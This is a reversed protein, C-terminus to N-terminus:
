VLPEIDLNIFELVNHLRSISFVPIFSLMRNCVVFTAFSNLSMTGSKFSIGDWCPLISKPIEKCGVLLMVMELFFQGRCLKGHFDKMAQWGIQSIPM